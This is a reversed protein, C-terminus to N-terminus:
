RRDHLAERRHHNFFVAAVNPDESRVDAFLGATDSVFADSVVKV